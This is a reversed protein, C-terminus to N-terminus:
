VQLCLWVLVAPYGPMCFKIGSACFSLFVTHVCLFAFGGTCLFCLVVLATNAINVLAFHGCGNRTHPWAFNRSHIVLFIRCLIRNISQMWQESFRNFWKSYGPSCAYKAHNIYTCTPTMFKVIICSSIVKCFLAPFYVVTNAQQRQSILGEQRPLLIIDGNILWSLQQMILM